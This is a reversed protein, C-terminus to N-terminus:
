GGITVVPISREPSRWSGCPAILRCRRQARFGRRPGRGDTAALGPGGGGAGASRLGPLLDPQRSENETERGLRARDPHPVRRRPPLSRLLHYFLGRKRWTAALAARLIAFPQSVQPWPAFPVSRADGVGAPMAETGIAQDATTAM